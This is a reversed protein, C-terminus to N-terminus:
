RGCRVARRCRCTAASAPSLTRAWCSAATRRATPTSSCRARAAAAPGEHTITVVQDYPTIVQVTSGHVTVWGEREGLNLLVGYVGKKASPGPYLNYSFMEHMEDRREHVVVQKGDFHTHRFPPAVYIVAGPHFTEDLEDPPVIGQLLALGFAFFGANAPCVAMSPLGSDM